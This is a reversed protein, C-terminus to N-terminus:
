FAVSEKQERAIMQQECHEEYKEDRLNIEKELAKCKKKLADKKKILKDSKEEKLAKKIKKLENWKESYADTMERWRKEEKSDYAVMRMRDADYAVYLKTGCFDCKGKKVFCTTDEYKGDFATRTSADYDINYSKDCVPCFFYYTEMGWIEEERRTIDAKM